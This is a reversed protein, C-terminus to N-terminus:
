CGWFILFYLVYYTFLVISHIFGPILYDFLFEVEPSFDFQLGVQIKLNLLNLDIIYFIIVSTISLLFAHLFVM